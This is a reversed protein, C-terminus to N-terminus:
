FEKRYEVLALETEPLKWWLSSGFSSSGCLSDSILLFFWNETLSGLFSCLAKDMLLCNEREIIQLVSYWFVASM